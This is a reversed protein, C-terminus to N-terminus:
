RGTGEAAPRVAYKGDTLKGSISFQPMDVTEVTDPVMPWLDSDGIVMDFLGQKMLDEFQDEEQLRIDGERSLEEKKMFWTAATVPGSGMSELIQRISESTVQQGVVLIRKGSFDVGAEAWKRCDEEALPNRVEFPTGFKKELFRATKWGSPSVVLNKEAASASAIRELGAGMGYCDVQNWGEKKLIDTLKEGAKRDSLDLPNVGLVGIRGKEVPLKEEAFRRFLEEYAKEAGRDYLEMGTTDVTLIPMKVKREAMRKLGHYDTAIVSPVPTGIVAAFNAELKAAADALKEVLRDDRGMIADMDRLGASFIASAHDAWRPEDFGCINGACGGADCIILIGGLEYLVSVAGSQDPAFPTLYKRLGKM